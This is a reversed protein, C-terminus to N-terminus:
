APRPNEDTLRAARRLREYDPIEIMKAAELRILSFDLVRSNPAGSLNGKIV